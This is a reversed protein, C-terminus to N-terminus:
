NAIALLSINGNNTTASLLPGGGNVAGQWDTESLEGSMTLPLDSQIRGFETRLHVDFASSAPFALTINGFSNQVTHSASGDLGGSFDINGNQTELALIAEEAETILIDGFANQLDLRGSAGAVTLDGNNTKLDYGAAGVQVVSIEGFQNSVELDGDLRGREVSVRGNQDEVMLSAAGIDAIEIDGFQNSVFVEGSATLGQISLRAKMAEIKFDAGALDSLLVDGFSAVLSVEGPGAALGQVDLNGLECRVDVAGNHNRLVVGGFTSTIELPGSMGTVQVEGQSAMLRAAMEIPAHVTFSVQDPGGRTGGVTFAEPQFYRLSLRSGDQQVEVRLAAADSEAEAPTEGWAKKVIEVEVDTRDEAILTIDGSGTEIELDLPGTLAYNHTESTEAWETAFNFFRVQGDHAQLWLYSGYATLGCLGIV